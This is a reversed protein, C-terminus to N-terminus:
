YGWRGRRLQLRAEKGLGDGTRVGPGVARSGGSSTARSNGLAAAGPRQAQAKERQCASTCQRTGGEAQACGSSSRAARSPHLGSRRVATTVPRSVRGGPTNSGGWRDPSRDRGPCRVTSTGVPAGGQSYGTGLPGAVRGRGSIRSTREPRASRGGARTSAPGPPADAPGRAQPGPSAIAPGRAPPGSPDVAPGRATPGPPVVAPGRASTDQPDVM